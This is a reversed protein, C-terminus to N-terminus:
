EGKRSVPRIADFKCMQICLGCGTCLDENIQWKFRGKDTKLNTRTIAQCNIRSCMTCATCNDLYTFFLDRKIKRPYLVCPAQSLIVSLHDSELERKVVDLTEAMDTPDVVYVHEVGLARALIEYDVKSADEWKINKGTRPDPQGGTLRVQNRFSKPPLCTSAGARRVGM